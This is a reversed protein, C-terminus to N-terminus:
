AANRFPTLFYVPYSVNIKTRYILGDRRIILCHRGSMADPM